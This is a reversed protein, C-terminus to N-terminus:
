KREHYRFGERLGLALNVLGLGSVAGRVFGNLLILRLTFDRVLYRNGSWLNTWPLVLLLVGTWLSISVYLVLALRRRWLRWGTLQHASEAPATEEGVSASEVVPKASQRHAQEGPQPLPTPM